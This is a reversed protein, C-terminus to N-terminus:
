SRKIYVGVRSFYGVRNSGSGVMNYYMCDTEKCDLMTTRKASLVYSCDLLTVTM